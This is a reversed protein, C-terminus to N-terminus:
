RRDTRCVKRDVPVDVGVIRELVAAYGGEDRAAAPGDGLAKVAHTPVEQPDVDLRAVPTEFGGHQPDVASLLM